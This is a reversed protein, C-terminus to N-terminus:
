RLVTVTGTYKKDTQLNNFRVTVSWTFLDNHTYYDGNRANGIWGKEPDDTQFIIEGWRNVIQFEFERIEETSSMVPKFVDNIGDDDPTFANPMYLNFSNDINVTKTLESLCGYDNMVKLTVYYVGGHDFHHTPSMESSIIGDGFNWQYQTAGSSSDAFAVDLEYIIEDDPTFVFNSQPVDFVQIMDEYFQVQECGYISIARLQVDYFGSDSFMVEPTQASSEAGNSFTWEWTNGDTTANEFNVTLPACGNFINPMVDIVPTPHITYVANYESTCGLDNSSILKVTHSGVADFQFTPLQLNSVSADDAFWEYASSGSTSLNVQINEMPFCSSESSLTFSSVPQPQVIVEQEAHHTCGFQNQTNLSVTYSVPGSSTNVFEQCENFNVSTFGNDFDWSYENADTSANNSCVNLPSCGGTTNLNMVSQPQPNVLFSLSAAAPCGNTATATASVFYTNGQNFQHMPDSGIATNGDGFDWDISAISGTTVSHYHSDTFPCVSIEDVSISITPSPLVEISVISTDFSCGDNAYFIVDYIGAEDFIHNPSMLNSFDGDDFDFEYNSAGTTSNNFEIFLPSCGVPVSPMLDIHVTNPLVTVTSETSDSGCSNFAILKILFDQLSEETIYVKPAPVAESTTDGDGLDWLYSQPNGNSSNSFVTTVPSCQSSLDTSFAAHPMPHVLVTETQSTSGCQNNTTLILDYSTNVLDATFDMGPPNAVNTITGGLDWSYTMNVGTSNNTFHVHLPTCGEDVSVGFDSQPASIVDINHSISNSCGLSNYATLTVNYLGDVLYTTTPNIDMSNFSNGFNWEYDAAANSNNTFSVNTNTCATSATTFDATPMPVVTLTMADFAVCGFIDTATLTFTTTTSVDATAYAVTPDDLSTGHDWLLDLASLSNAGGNLQFTQGECVGADAGASVTPLAHVTVTRSDSTQCSGVGLTYICNFNGSTSPTFVGSSTLNTSATWAGGTTLPTLSVSASGQCIEMDAGADAYVTSTVTVVRQDCVTCNFANTFCYDLTYTGASTPTFLGTSNVYSGSWIGGAPSFGSLQQSIGQDCFSIDSGANVTPIPNSTVTLLDSASCGALDTVTLTVSGNANVTLTPNQIQDDSLTLTSNWFYTEITGNLSSAAPTLDVVTGQCESIDVGANVTPLSLVHVDLNDTTQCGGSMATYTLTYNGVASPSFLGASTVLSSGSWAGGSALQIPTDNLCIDFDSGANLPGPNIVTVNMVDSASCNNADTYSYTLPFTGLNSPTFVGAADIGTGSWSGGSPSYGATAVPGGNICTSFDNGASVIPLNHVTVLLNDQAQCGANDTATVYYTTNSTPSAIPNQINYNNLSAGTWSYSNISGNASSADANLPTTFGNCIGIDSGANITPLPKVTVVLQDSAMCQGTSATYTLTFNGVTTPNFIGASTVSTGSWTGGSALSIPTANLCISVDSGANVTGPAVVTVVVQDTSTCNSSNTYSYTLTFNGTTTPTFVGVTTVGAGSWTGGSPSFGTLNYAGSNSCLTVDSGANVTPYSNVTVLVNDSSTCGENDVVTLGYTYTSTPSAVPNLISSNSLSPGTWTTAIISGNLSSSIGSLNTSLGNCIAVDPGANVTPLPRVIVQVNDTVTCGASGSTVTLNHTGVSNPTFLGGPTVSSSGSWTGVNPLQVPATNLCPDIDAGGNIAAPTTVTVVVQDTATCNNANTYSYTLTYPGNAPATFLGTPSVNAGSWTGGSPSGTLQLTGQSLCMSQDAGADVTPLPYIFVTMADSKQCGAGDVVTVTYTNQVTPTINWCQTAPGGVWTYISIPGNTSSATACLQTPTGPCVNLDPGASVTPLPLVTLTFQDTATCGSADHITLTYTTTSTPALSTNATPNFTTGNWSYTVTGTTGSTTVSPGPNYPQGSCKTADPGASVSCQSYSNGGLLVFIFLVFHAVLRPNKPTKV